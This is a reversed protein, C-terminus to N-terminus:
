GQGLVSVFVCGIIITLRPMRHGPL